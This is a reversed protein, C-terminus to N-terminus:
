KSEGTAPAATGNETAAEAEAEAKARMAEGIGLLEVQEDWNIKYDVDVADYGVDIDRQAIMDRAGRYFRASDPRVLLVIYEKLSNAAVRDLLREFANGPEGLQAGNVVIKGPYLVLGEPRCDIYSPIKIVGESASQEKDSGLIDPLTVVPLADPNLAIRTVTVILILCILNLTIVMISLYPLVDIDIKEIKRRRGM